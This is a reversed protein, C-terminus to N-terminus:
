SISESQGSIGFIIKLKNRDKKILEFGNNSSIIFVKKFIWFRFYIGTIKKPFIFRPIRHEIDNEEFETSLFTPNGFGVEAFVKKM